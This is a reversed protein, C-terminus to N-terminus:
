YWEKTEDGYCEINEFDPSAEIDPIWNKRFLYKAEEMSSAYEYEYGYEHGTECCLYEVPMRYQYLVDTTVYRSTDMDTDNTPEFLDMDKVGYMDCAIRKADIEDRAMVPVELTLRVRHYRKPHEKEWKVKEKIIPGEVGYPWSMESIEKMSYLDDGMRQEADNMLYYKKELEDPFWKRDFHCNKGSCMPQHICNECGPEDDREEYGHIKAAKDLEDRYEM